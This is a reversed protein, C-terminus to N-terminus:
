LERRVEVQLAAQMFERALETRMDKAYPDRSQLARLRYKGATPTGTEAKKRCIVEGAKKSFKVPNVPAIVDRCGFSKLLEPLRNADALAFNWTATQQM